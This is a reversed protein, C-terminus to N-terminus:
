ARFKRVAAKQIGFSIDTLLYLLMQTLLHQSFEMAAFKFPYKLCLQYGDSPWNYTDFLNDM